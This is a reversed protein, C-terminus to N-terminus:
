EEQDSKKVTREHVDVRMGDGLVADKFWSMMLGSVVLKKTEDQILCSLLSGLCTTSHRLIDLPKGSGMLMSGADPHDSGNEPEIIFAIVAKGKMENTIEGDTITIKVM